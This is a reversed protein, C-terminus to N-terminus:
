LDNFSGGADDQMWILLWRSEFIQLDNENFRESRFGQRVPFGHMSEWGIVSVFKPFCCM